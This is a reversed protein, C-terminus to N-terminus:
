ETDLAKIFFDCKYLAFSDIRLPFSLFLKLLILLYHPDPLYQTDSSNSSEPFTTFYACSLDSSQYCDWKLSFCDLIESDVM